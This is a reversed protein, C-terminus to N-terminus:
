HRAYYSYQYSGYYGQHRLDLKNLAVGLIRAGANELIRRTRLLGARPTDGSAVVLVVGDALRSLITADTVPLVPPSDLIVHKFRSALKEFLLDMADSALLEAPNAPIPGSPLVWLNPESSYRQLAEHWNGGSALLTSLGKDNNLGLARAVGSNRMDCDVILM